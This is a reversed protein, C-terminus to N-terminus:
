AQCGGEHKQSVRTGPFAAKRSGFAGEQANTQKKDTKKSNDNNPRKIKDSIIYETLLMM